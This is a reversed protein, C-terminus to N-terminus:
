QTNFIYKFNGPQKYNSFCQFYNHVSIHFIVAHNNLIFLREIIKIKVVLREIIKIEITLWEM